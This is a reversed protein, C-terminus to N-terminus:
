IGTTHHTLETYDLLPCFFVVMWERAAFALTMISISKKFYM